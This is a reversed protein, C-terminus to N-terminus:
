IASELRLWGRDARLDIGGYRGVRRARVALYNVAAALLTFVAGTDRDPGERGEFFERYLRRSFDERVKELIRSLENREISEWALIELTVPRRRIARAFNCFLISAVEPLPRARIGEPDGETVEELTPWYTGNEAFARLLQPLGGFYRYILVKDIQAERAVANVGFGRFGRVALIRGVAKLIRKETAKRDRTM